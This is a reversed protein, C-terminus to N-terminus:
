ADEERRWVKIIRTRGKRKEEREREDEKKREDGMERQVGEESGGRVKFDGINYEHKITAGSARVNSKHAAITEDSADKKFTVIYENPNAM